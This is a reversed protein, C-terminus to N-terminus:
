KKLDKKFFRKIKSMINEKYEVPFSLGNIEFMYGNKIKVM